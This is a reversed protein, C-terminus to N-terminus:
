ELTTFTGSLVTAGSATVTVTSGLVTVTASDDIDLEGSGLPGLNIAGELNGNLYVDVSTNAPGDVEVSFAREAVDAIPNNDAVNAAEFKLKAKGSYAASAATLEIRSEDKTTNGGALAVGTSAVLVAAATAIVAVPLTVGGFRRWLSRESLFSM